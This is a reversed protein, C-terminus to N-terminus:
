HLKTRMRERAVHRNSVLVSALWFFLAAVHFAVLIGVGIIAPSLHVFEHAPPDDAMTGFARQLPARAARRTM